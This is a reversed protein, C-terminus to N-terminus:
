KEAEMSNIGPKQRVPRKGRSFSAKRVKKGEEVEGIEEVKL